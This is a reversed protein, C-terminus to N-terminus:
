ISDPPLWDGAVRGPSLGTARRPTDAGIEAIFVNAVGDRLSVYAVSEGDPSLVPDRDDHDGNTLARIEGSALDLLAIDRRGDATFRDFVIRDESPHWRLSSIQVDDKFNTVRAAAGSG